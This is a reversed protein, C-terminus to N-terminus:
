DNSQIKKIQEISLKTYKVIKAIPENDTLMEKAAKINVKEIGQKFGKIFNSKYKNSFKEKELETTFGYDQCYKIIDADITDQYRDLIEKDTDTM